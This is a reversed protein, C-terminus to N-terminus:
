IALRYTRKHPYLWRSSRVTFLCKELIIQKYGFDSMLRMRSNDFTAAVVKVSSICDYYFSYNLRLSTVCVAMLRTTGKRLRIVQSFSFLVKVSVEELIFGKRLAGHEFRTMLSM